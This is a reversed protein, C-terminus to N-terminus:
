LKFSPLSLFIFTHMENFRLGIANLVSARSRYITYLVPDQRIRLESPFLINMRNVGQKQKEQLLAPSRAYIRLFLFAIAFISTELYPLIRSTTHSHRRCHADNGM